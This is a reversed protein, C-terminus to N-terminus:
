QTLDNLAMLVAVTTNYGPLCIDTIDRSVGTSPDAEPRAHGPQSVALKRSTM